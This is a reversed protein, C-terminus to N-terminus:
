LLVVPLRRLPLLVVLSPHLVGADQSALYVYDAEGYGQLVAEDRGCAALLLAAAFILVRKM